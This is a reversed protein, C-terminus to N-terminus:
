YFGAGFSYLTIYQTVGATGETFGIYVSSLGSPLTFTYQAAPEGGSYSSNLDNCGSCDLWVKMVADNNVGKTADIEIRVTHLVNDEFWTVPHL